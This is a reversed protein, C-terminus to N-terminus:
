WWMVVLAAVVVTVCLAAILPWNLATKDSAAPSSAEGAASPVSVLPGSSLSSQLGQNQEPNEIDLGLWPAPLTCMGFGKIERTPLDDVACYQRLKDARGIRKKALPQLLRAILLELGPMEWDQITEYARYSLPSEVRHRPEEGTVLFSLLAGVGYADAAPRQLKGTMEERIEPAVYDINVDLQEQELAVGRKIVAGIGVPRLSEAEDVVLRRPDFDRWLWDEDHAEVLFDVFDALMSLARQPKLGKPHEECIWDYLTPGDVRECVLVPEPPDDIPSDEIQLWDDARLAIDSDAVAELFDWQRKLASRRGAVAEADFDDDYLASRFVVPRQRDEDYGGAIQFRDGSAILEEIRYLTEGQTTDILHDGPKM